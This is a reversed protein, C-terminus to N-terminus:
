PPACFNFRSSLVFSRGEVQNAAKEYCGMSCGTLWSFYLFTTTSADVLRLSRRIREVPAGESSLLFMQLERIWKWGCLILVDGSECFEVANETRRSSRPPWWGTYLGGNHFLTYISLEVSRGERQTLSCFSYICEPLVAILSIPIRKRSCNKDRANRIRVTKQLLSIASLEQATRCNTCVSFSNCKIPWTPCCM